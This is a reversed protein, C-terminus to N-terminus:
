HFSAQDLKWQLRCRDNDGDIIITTTHIELLLKEPVGNMCM